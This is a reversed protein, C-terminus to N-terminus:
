SCYLRLYRLFLYLDHFSIDIYGYLAAVDRERETSHYLNTIYKKIMTHHTQTHPSVHDSGIMRTDTESHCLIIKLSSSERDILFQSSLLPTETSLSRM